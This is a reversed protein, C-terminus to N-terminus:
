SLMYGFSGKGILQLIKFCDLSVLKAESESQYINLSEEVEVLEFGLFESEEKSPEAPQVEVSEISRIKYAPDPIKSILKKKDATSTRCQDLHLYPVGYISLPTGKIKLYIAEIAKIIEIRRPTLYLYDYELPV